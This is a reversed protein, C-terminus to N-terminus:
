SVYSPFRYRVDPFRQTLQKYARVREDIKAHHLKKHCNACLVVLNQRADDHSISWPILHHVESYVGNDTEFNKIGCVQCEPDYMLKLLTVIRKFRVYSPATRTPPFAMKPERKAILSSLRELEKELEKRTPRVHRQNNLEYDIERQTADEDSFVAGSLTRLWFIFVTRNRGFQDKQIETGYSVVEVEGLYEHLGGLTHQKFFHLETANRNAEALWLNGRALKQDGTQGEGTYRYLGSTRDYFDAYINHSRGPVPKSKPFDSFVVVFSLRKNPRIGGQGAVGLHRWIKKKEYFGNINFPFQSAM